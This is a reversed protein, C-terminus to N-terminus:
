EPYVLAKMALSETLLLAEGNVLATEDMAAIILLSDDADDEEKQCHIDIYIM